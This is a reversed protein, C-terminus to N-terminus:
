FWHFSALSLTFGRGARRCTIAGGSNACRFGASLWARGSRLIPRKAAPLNGDIALELDNGARVVQVQGSASLRVVGEGDYAGQKIAPSACYLGDFGRLGVACTVKQSSHSGNSVFGSGAAVPAAILVTVVVIVFRM